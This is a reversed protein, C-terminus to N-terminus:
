VWRLLTKFALEGPTLNPLNVQTPQASGDAAVTYLDSGNVYTTKDPRDRADYKFAVMTGDQKGVADAVHAANSAPLLPTDHYQDFCGAVDTHTYERKDIQTSGGAVFVQTAPGLWSLIPNCGFQLTGDYNLYVNLTGEQAAKSTIERPNTTTGATLEFMQPHLSGQSQERYYFNGTGDFGVAIYSPPVGSFGGSGAPPSVNNFNGQTDIWGAVEQGNVLESMAFKTLDPSAAIEIYPIGQSNNPINFQAVQSYQGSTPDIFGYTRQNSKSTDVALIGSTVQASSTPSPAATSSASNTENPATNTAPSSTNPPSPSKTPTSSGAVTSTGSTSNSASDLMHMGVIGAAACLAVASVVVAIMVPKRSRKPSRGATPMAPQLPPASPGSAAPTVPAPAPWQPQQAPPPVPASANPPASAPRPKRRRHPTWGQADWWRQANPDDPDDYWDPERPTTV